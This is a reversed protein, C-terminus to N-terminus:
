PEYGAIKLARAYDAPTNVNLFGRLDPDIRRLDAEPVRRITLHEVIATLRSQGRALAEMKLAVESRYAACLPQLSGAIDPVVADYEDVMACLARAVGARLLPLDCSCVFAIANRAARLGRILAPVPGAFASDDRLLHIRGLWDRLLDAAVYREDAAPAAVVIVEDFVPYIEAILREIITTTGFPLTPKPQGM